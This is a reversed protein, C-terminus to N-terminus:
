GPMDERIGPLSLYHVRTNRFHVCHVNAGTEERDRVNAQGVGCQSDSRSERWEIPYAIRLIPQYAQRISNSYWSVRQTIPNRWVLSTVAGTQPSLIPHNEYRITLTRGWIAPLPRFCSIRTRRIQSSSCTSPPSQPHSNNPVLRPNTASPHPGQSPRGSRTPLSV